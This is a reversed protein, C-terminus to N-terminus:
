ILGEAKLWEIFANVQQRLLEASEELAKNRAAEYIENCRWQTELEDLGLERIEEYKKWIAMAENENIYTVPDYFVALNTSEKVLKQAAEKMRFCTFADYDDHTELDWNQVDKQSVFKVYVPLSSEGLVGHVLSYGFATELTDINRALELGAEEFSSALIVFAEEESMFTPAAVAVCGISGTGEGFEFLPIFFGNLNTPIPMDGMIVYEEYNDTNVPSDTNVPVPSKGVIVFEECGSLGLAVAASLSLALPAKLWRRPTAARVALKSEVSYKDPYNPTQISEVPKIKM